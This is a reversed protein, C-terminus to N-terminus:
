TEWTVAVTSVTHHRKFIYQIVGITVRHTLNSERQGVRLDDLAITAGYCCFWIFIHTISGECSQDNTM